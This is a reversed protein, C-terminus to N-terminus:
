NGSSAQLEINDFYVHGPLGGSGGWQEIMIYIGTLNEATVISTLDIDYHHWTGDDILQFAAFGDGNFAQSPQTGALWFHDIGQSAPHLNLCIGIFGGLDNPNPDGDALGLYDFSLVFPGSVSTLDLPSVTFIDGAFNLRTFNLVNNSDNLPDTVIQGHHDGGNKGVWQDLNGSEFDETFLMQSQAPSPSATVMWVAAVLFMRLRYCTTFM